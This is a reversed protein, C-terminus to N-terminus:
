EMRQRVCEYLMVATAASANLSQAKSSMPIKLFTTCLKDLYPPIGRNEGGCILVMPGKLDSNPLLDGKSAHAGAIAFGKEKLEKLLGELNRPKSIEINEIMGASSKAVSANLPVTNKRELLLADVGFAVSSRIIAGLNGPDEMSAAVLLLPAEKESIIEQLREASTYPKISCFAVVGQHRKTEALHNLKIEPVMNYSLREKRCIKMLNFLSQNRKDKDIYVHEIDQKRRKILEEVAHIGYVPIDEQAM